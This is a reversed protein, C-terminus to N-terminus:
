HGKGWGEPDRRWADISERDAQPLDVEALLDDFAALAILDVGAAAFAAEAASLGYTFTALVAIVEAGADRLADVAAISSGGTSVLDEVVVTRAGPKLRGEVRNRQGHGKAAARVYVLPVDLREALLAAQPIGATAVGAIADPRLDADGVAAELADTLRRRVRPVSLTVRNDCYIPARIGSAWAYPSDPRLSVAGAALLERAIERATANSREIM